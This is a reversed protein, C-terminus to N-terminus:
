ALQSIESRLKGSWSPQGVVKAEWSDNRWEPASVGRPTLAGGIVQLTGAQLTGAQLTGAQLTGAQLTGAEDTDVDGVGGNSGGGNAGLLLTAELLVTPDIAGSTGGRGASEAEAAQRDAASPDPCSRMLDCLQQLHQPDPRSAFGSEALVQSATPRGAAAKAVCRSIFAGIPSQGMNPDKLAPPEGGVIRFMAALPNSLESHPPESEILEILTVGVSWIDARGDHGAGSIVEPAMWHPTGIITHQQALTSDM